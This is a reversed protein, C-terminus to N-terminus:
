RVRKEALKHTQCGFNVTFNFLAIKDQPFFFGFTHKQKNFKRYSLKMFHEWKSTKHTYNDGILKKVDNQNETEM